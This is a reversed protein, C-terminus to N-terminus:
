ESVIVVTAGRERRKGDPKAPKAKASRKLRALVEELAETALTDLDTGPTVSIIQELDDALRSPVTVTLVSTDPREGAKRRGKSLMASVAQDGVVQDLPNTGITEPVPPKKPM